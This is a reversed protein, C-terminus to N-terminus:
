GTNTEDKVEKWGKLKCEGIAKRAPKGYGKCCWDNYTKALQSDKPHGANHHLKCGKCHHTM